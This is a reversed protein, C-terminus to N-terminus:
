RKGGPAAPNYAAPHDNWGVVVLKLPDLRRAIEAPLGDFTGFAIDVRRRMEPGSTARFSDCSSVM